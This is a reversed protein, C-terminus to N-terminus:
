RARRAPGTQEVNKLRGTRADIEQKLFDEEFDDSRLQQQFATETRALVEELVNGIKIKRTFVPIQFCAFRASLRNEPRVRAMDPLERRQM